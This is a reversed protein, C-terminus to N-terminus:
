SVLSEVMLRGVLLFGSSVLYGVPHPGREIANLQSIPPQIRHNITTTRHNITTSIVIYNEHPKYVLKYSPPGMRYMNRVTYTEIEGGFSFVVGYNLTQDSFKSSHGTGWFWWNGRVELHLTIIEFCKYITFFIHLLWPQLFHWTECSHCKNNKEGWTLPERPRVCLGLYFALCATLVYPPKWQWPPVGIAPHNIISFGILISSKSTGGIKPFWWIASLIDSHM